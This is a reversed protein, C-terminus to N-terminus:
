YDRNINCDNSRICHWNHTTQVLKEAASTIIIADTTINNYSNM